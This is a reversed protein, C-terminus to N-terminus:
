FERAYYNRVGRRCRPCYRDRGFFGYPELWSLIAATVMFFGKYKEPNAFVTATIIAIRDAIVLKKFYGWLMLELGFKLKKYDFAHPQYLQEALEDFRSIPGQIIQPFFSVFLAFKALNTEAEFKDRYLDIIYGM